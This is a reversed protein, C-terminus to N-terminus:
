VRGLVSWTRRRFFVRCSGDTGTPKPVELCLAATWTGPRAGGWGGAFAVQKGDSRFSIRGVSWKATRRLFRTPQGSRLDFICVHGDSRGGCLALILRRSIDWPKFHRTLADAHWTFVLENSKATRAEVIGDSSITAFIHGTSSLALRHHPMRARRSSLMYIGCVYQTIWISLGPTFWGPFVPHSCSRTFDKSSVSEPGLELIGSRVSSHTAVALHASDPSFIFVTTPRRLSRNRWIHCELPPDDAARVM